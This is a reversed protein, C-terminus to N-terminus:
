LKEDEIQDADRYTGPRCTPCDEAGCVRDACATYRPKKPEDYELDKCPEDTTM